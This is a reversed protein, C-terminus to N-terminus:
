VHNGTYVLKAGDVDVAQGGRMSDVMNIIANRIDVFSLDDDHVTLNLTVTMNRMM